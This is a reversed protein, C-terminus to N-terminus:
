AADAAERREYFGWLHDPAECGIADLQEKMVKYFKTPFVGRRRKWNCVAASEQDDCM